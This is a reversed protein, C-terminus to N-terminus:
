GLRRRTLSETTATSQARARYEPGYAIVSVLIGNTSSLSDPHPALRIRIGRNFIVGSSTQQVRAREGAREWL